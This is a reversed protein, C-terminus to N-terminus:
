RDPSHLHLTHLSTEIMADPSPEHNTPLIAPLAFTHSSIDISSYREMRLRVGQIHWNDLNRQVVIIIPLLM